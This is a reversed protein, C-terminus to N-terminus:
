EFARRTFWRWGVVAFLLLLGLVTGEAFLLPPLGTGTRIRLFAPIVKMSTLFVAGASDASMDFNVPFAAQVRRGEPLSVEATFFGVPAGDVATGVIAVPIVRDVWTSDMEPLEYRLILDLDVEDEARPGLAVGSRLLGTPSSALGVVGRPVGGIEVEVEPIEVGDAALLQVGLIRSEPVGRVTFRIEVQGPETRLDALLHARTIIGAM